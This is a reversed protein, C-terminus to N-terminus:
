LDDEDEDGWEMVDEPFQPSTGGTIKDCNNCGMPEEGCGEGCAADENM